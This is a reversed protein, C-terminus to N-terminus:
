RDNSKRFSLLLKLANNPNDGFYDKAFPENLFPSFGAREAESLLDVNQFAMSWDAFRREELPEKLLTIINKHRSDVLIKEHLRTVKDEEGEFAQMFNGDKYLLMGTIQDRENNERAQRLLELLEPGTMLRAASSIYVFSKLM